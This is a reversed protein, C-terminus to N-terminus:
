KHTAYCSIDSLATCGCIENGKPHPTAQKACVLYLQVLCHGVIVSLLSIMAISVPISEASSSPVTLRSPTLNEREQTLSFFQCLLTTLGELKNRQTGEAPGSFIKSGGGSLLALQTAHVRGEVPLNEM